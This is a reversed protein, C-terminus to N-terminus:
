MRVDGNTLGEWDEKTFEVYKDGRLWYVKDSVENPDVGEKRLGTKINKMTSTTDSKATLRIFQPCAYKPLKGLAHKAVKELDLDQFKDKHLAACGARGDQNPVLVGYVNWDLGDKFSNLISTVEETSVNESKWRFTDGLRDEFYYFGYRDRRLLDGTRFYADGKWLVDKIIKEDSAAKNGKYGGFDKAPVFSDIRSVLEGPENYSAQKCNGKEDRWIEQTDQDIKLLMDGVALRSLFSERGVAGAGFKGVNYNFLFTNGETSAFFESIVKVGFRQRFKEWVDARMGNGYAMRVKHEKDLASLPQALLYRCIEGIYQVITANYSRVDHWFKTASFKRELIVTSGSSWAAAVCLFAGSSHYLPLVTFIRDKPTFANFKSWLMSATTVKGHSCPAAKPFGTSGSTYILCAPDKWKLGSRDKNGLSDTSQKELLKKDIVKFELPNTGNETIGNAEQKKKQKLKRKQKHSLGEEQHADEVNAEGDDDKEDSDDQGETEKQSEKEDNHGNQLPEVEKWKEKNKQEEQTKSEANKGDGPKTKSLGDRWEYMAKIGTLQDKIEIVHELMDIDVLITDSESVKICHALADGTLNYNIFAPVVGISLCGLWIEVFSPKNPVIMAISDKPNFDESKLFHAIRRANKEVQNWTWVQDEFIYMPKNGQKLVQREFINYASVKDNIYEDLKMRGMASAFAQGKLLDDIVGFPSQLSFGPRSDKLSIENGAM